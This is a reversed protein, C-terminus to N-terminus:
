DNRECDADGSIQSLILILNSALDAPIDIRGQSSNGEDAEGDVKFVQLTDIEM